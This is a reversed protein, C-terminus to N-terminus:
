TFTLRCFMSQDFGFASSMTIPSIMNNLIRGEFQAGSTAVPGRPGPYNVGGIGPADFSLVTGPVDMQVQALVLGRATDVWFRRGRILRINSYYGSDFQAACGLAFPKFAPKAPDLLPADAVGTVAQGNDKRRCDTALSVGSSRNALL